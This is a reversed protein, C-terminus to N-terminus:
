GEGVSVQTVNRLERRLFIRGVEAFRKPSDTVEFIDEGAGTDDVLGKDLLSARVERSIEEASDILVASPGLVLSIVKKLVPYHTCGLVLTDAGETVFPSLYRLAVQHTIENDLWGEEVLPVFLPCPAALVKVEPSLAGIAKQYAQSDVTGRTGVVGVVGNRTSSVAARAGPEVVGFVPIDMEARLAEIAHASATNCAVVIADVGQSRLYNAIQLSYRIVTHASKTGYPVRATDGLYRIRAGPLARRLERYVTLGGIGSDFVGLNIM